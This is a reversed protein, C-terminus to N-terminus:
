KKLVKSLVRAFVEKVQRANQRGAAKDIVEGKSPELFVFTPAQSVGWKKVEKSDQRYAVKVFLFKPHYKLATRDELAALTETSNKGEDAFALVVPRKGETPFKLAKEDFSVWPPAKPSYKELAKGLLGDLTAVGTFTGRHFEEGDGDLFILEGARGCKMDGATKKDTVRM